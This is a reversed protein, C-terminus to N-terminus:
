RNLSSFLFAIDDLSSFSMSVLDYLHFLLFFSINKVSVASKLQLDTRGWELLRGGQGKPEM